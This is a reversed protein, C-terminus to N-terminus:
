VAPAEPSWQERWTVKINGPEGDIVRVRVGLREVLTAEDTGQFGDKIATELATKLLAREFGQPTQILRLRSRDLTREVWDGEVEKVTESVALGPVCARHRRVAEIAASILATSIYPRAADHVLVRTVADGLSLLGQYVSDQRQRGGAVAHAPCPLRLQRLQGEVREVWDAPVAVAVEDVLPAFRLLSAQYLPRDDLPLFQKPIPSGFRTGAGGAALVLGIM